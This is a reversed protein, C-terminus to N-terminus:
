DESDSQANRGLIGDMISNKVDGKVTYLREQKDKSLIQILASQNNKADKYTESSKADISRKHAKILRTLGSSVNEARDACMFDKADEALSETRKIMLVYRGFPQNILHGQYYPIEHNFVYEKAITGDDQQVDELEKFGDVLFDIADNRKESDDPIM